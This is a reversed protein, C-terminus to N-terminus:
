GGFIHIVNAWELGSITGGGLVLVLVAIMVRKIASVEGCLGKDSKKGYVTTNISILNDQHKQLNGNILALHKNQSTLERIISETREDLRGLLEDRKEVTLKM